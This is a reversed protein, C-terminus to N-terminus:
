RLDSANSDSSYATKSRVSSSETVMSILLLTMVPLIMVPLVANTCRASDKCSPPQRPVVGFHKYEVVMNPLEGRSSIVDYVANAPRRVGRGSQTPLPATRPSCPPVAATRCTISWTSVTHPFTLSMVATHSWSQVPWLFKVPVVSKGLTPSQHFQSTPKETEEVTFKEKVLIVM